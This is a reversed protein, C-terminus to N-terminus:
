FFGIRFQILCLLRQGIRVALENFLSFRHLRQCLLLVRQLLVELNRGFVRRRRSIQRRARARAVINMSAEPSASKHAKAPNPNSVAPNQAVVILGEVGGHLM